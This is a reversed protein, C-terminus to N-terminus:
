FYGMRRYRKVTHITELTLLINHDIGLILVTINADMKKCHDLFKCDQKNDSGAGANVSGGPWQGGSGRAQPHGPQHAM